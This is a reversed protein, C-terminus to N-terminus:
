FLCGNMWLYIYWFRRYYVNDMYFFDIYLEIFFYGEQTGHDASCKLVMDWFDMNFNDKIFGYIIVMYLFFKRRLSYKQSLFKRDYDFFRKKMFVPLFMGNQRSFPNWFWFSTVWKEWITFVQLPSFGFMCLLHLNTTDNKRTFFLTRLM